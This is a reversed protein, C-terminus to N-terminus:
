RPRSIELEPGWIEMEGDGLDRAGAGWIETEGDGGLLVLLSGPASGFFGPDGALRSWACVDRLTQMTSLEDPKPERLPPGTTPISSYM